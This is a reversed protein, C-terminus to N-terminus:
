IKFKSIEQMLIESNKESIESHKVIDSFNETVIQAKQAVETTSNAGENAAVNVNEIVQVMDHISAGVAEATESFQQVLNDVVKADGSYQEAVNVATEYDKYVDTEVFSLLNSSNISLSEVVKTVKQTIGQIEVVTNKSQEALKRIEDAVVAFGKGLEGARAAEIAANLALLNTQSTIDMIAESLVNIEEAVKSEEIAQEVKEKTVDFIEIARQQAKMFDEKMKMARNNIEASLVSGEQSKQAMSRASNEIEVSTATMEEASAATEEMGAAIEESIAAVGLIEDNLKAVQGTTRKSVEISIETTAHVTEMINRLNSIFKNVGSALQGIEDKSKIKIEQTLDGGKDALKEIERKLLMIPNVISLTMIISFIIMIVVAAATVAGIITICQGYLKKSESAATVSGEKNFEVLKLLISSATDFATKGEGNMLKMAEETKLQRSLAVVQSHVQLYKNWETVVTNYLKRDEADDSYITKEYLKLSSQIEKDKDNMLKELAAMDNDNTSIVHQMELNRYDSTMTNIENSISVGPLWSDNVEQINTNIKNLVYYSFFGFGIFMVVLIAFISNMKKKVTINNLWKM